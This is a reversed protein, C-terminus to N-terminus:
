HYYCGNDLDLAFLKLKLINIDTLKVAAFVQFSEYFRFARRVIYKYTEIIQM